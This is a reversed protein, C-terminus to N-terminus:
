CVIVITRIIAHIANSRKLVSLYGNTLRSFSLSWLSHANNLQKIHVTGYLVHRCYEYEPFGTEM